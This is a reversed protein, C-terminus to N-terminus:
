LDRMWRRCGRKGFGGRKCAGMKRRDLGRYFLASLANVFEEDIKEKYVPNARLNQRYFFDYRRRKGEDYPIQYAENIEKLREESESNGRNRDPHYQMALKPYAKNIDQASADPALGLTRYYDMTIM